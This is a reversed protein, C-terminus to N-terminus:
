KSIEFDYYCGELKDIYGKQKLQSVYGKAQQKTINGVRSMLDDFTFENGNDGEIAAELCADFFKLEVENLTPKGIKSEIIETHQLNGWGDHKRATSRYKDYLYDGWAVSSDLKIEVGKSYEDEYIATIVGTVELSTFIGKVKQGVLSDNVEITKM